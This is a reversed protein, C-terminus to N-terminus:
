FAKLTTLGAGFDDNYCRSISPRNINDAINEYIKALYCIYKFDRMHHCTDNVFYTFIEM